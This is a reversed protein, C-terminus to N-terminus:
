CVKVIPQSKQLKHENYCSRDCAWAFPNRSEDIDYQHLWVVRKKCCPCEQRKGGCIKTTCFGDKPVPRETTYQEQQM